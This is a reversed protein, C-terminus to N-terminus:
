MCRPDLRLEHLVVVRVGPASHQASQMILNWRHPLALEHPGGADLQPLQVSWNGQADATAQAQQGALTVTVGEGADATGWVNIPKGRQLLEAYPPVIAAALLAILLWPDACGFAALRASEGALLWGFSVRAAKTRATALVTLFHLLAVAPVLPASLGDLVLPSWRAAWPEYGLYFGLWALVACGLAAGTVALCWRGARYPNRMRGVVAAGALPVAVALELWPLSLPSM